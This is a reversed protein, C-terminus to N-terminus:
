EWPDVVEVLILGNPFAVVCRVLDRGVQYCSGICPLIQWDNTDIIQM